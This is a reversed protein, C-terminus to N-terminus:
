VEDELMELFLDSFDDWYNPKNEFQRITM